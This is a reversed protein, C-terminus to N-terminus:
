KIEIEIFRFSFSNDNIVDHEVGIKRSYSAGCTMASKIVGSTSEITLEGTTIPVVVYDHEHRHWGTHAGPAFSWETVIVRENELQKTGVALPRTSNTM